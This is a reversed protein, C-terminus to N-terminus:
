RLLGLAAKGLSELSIPLNCPRPPTADGDSELIVVIQRDNLMLIQCATGGVRLRRGSPPAPKNSIVIVSEENDHLEFLGFAGVGYSSGVIGETLVLQGHLQRIDQLISSLSIPTSQPRRAGCASSFLVGLFAVITSFSAGTRRRLAPCKRDQRM